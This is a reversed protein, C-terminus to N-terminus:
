LFYCIQCLKVFQSLDKRRPLRLLLFEANWLLSINILLQLSCFISKMLRVSNKTTKDGLYHTLSKNELMLIVLFSSSYFVFISFRTGNRKCHEINMIMIWM